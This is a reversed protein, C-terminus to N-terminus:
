IFLCCLTFGGPQPGRPHQCLSILPGKDTNQDLCALKLSLVKCEARTFCYRRRLVTFDFNRSLMVM